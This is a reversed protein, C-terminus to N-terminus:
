NGNKDREMKKLVKDANFIATYNVLVYLESSKENIIDSLADSINEYVSVKKGTEAYKLRLNLEEKRIGTLAIRGINEDSFKEFDVDWLWSIDIGDSPNDNLEIIIDKTNNDSVVTQIAQNFGAPNKALNLIVPKGINFEQMRGFQPRFESIYEFYESMDYEMTHLVAYGALLNYINYFGRYDAEVDTNGNVTFKIKGDFKLNTAKFESEPHQFGCDCYFDGLQSYHYYNYKLERGCLKCFKGDKVENLKQHSDEGISFSVSKVGSNEAIYHCIPDDGNYVFTVGEAKNLADTIYKETIDIEGYRDLQDRFLNTLVFYDPKFHDFAKVAYAEDIELVAYDAKMKGFIGTESLFATAIGNLMNAGVTNCVTLNKRRLVSNILNNTTTKGNTGCTVIIKEKVGGAAIRIADPCIRLAYKGPASSGNAGTLKSILILIKCVWVALLFRIKKM